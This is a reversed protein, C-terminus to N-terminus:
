PAGDPFVDALVAILATRDAGVAKDLYARASKPDRAAWQGFVSRMTETSVVM